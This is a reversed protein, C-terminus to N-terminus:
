RLCTRIERLFYNLTARLSFNLKVFSSGEEPDPVRVRNYVRTLANTVSEECRVPVSVIREQRAFEALAGVPTAIVHCKAALAELVANPMGETYSPFLFIEASALSFFKEEGTVVGPASVASSLGRDKIENRLWCRDAGEGYFTLSSIPNLKHYAEFGNLAEEIGKSFIMNGIFIIKGPVKPINQLKELYNHLDPDLMTHFKHVRATPPALNELTKQSEETLCLIVNAALLYNSFQRVCTSELYHLNQLNWGRFFVISKSNCLKVVIFRILADRTLCFPTLSPNLVILSPKKVLCVVILRIIFLLWNMVQQFKSIVGSASSVPLLMEKIELEEHLSYLHPMLRKYYNSVGAPPGNWDPVFFLVLHRM